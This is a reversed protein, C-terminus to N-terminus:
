GTFYFMKKLKDSSREPEKYIRTSKTSKLYAGNEKFQSDTIIDGGTSFRKQYFM